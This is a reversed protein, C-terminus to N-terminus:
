VPLREPRATSKPGWRRLADALGTESIPKSLYGDMGAELSKQRDEEYANATVAIIPLTRGGCQRERARIARTASLGDMEPMQCDMLVVDFYEREIAALAERGNDVNIVSCGLAELYESAVIQNVPNDEAVLM